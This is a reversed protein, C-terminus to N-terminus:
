PVGIGCRKAIAMWAREEKEAVSLREAHNGPPPTTELVQKAQAIKAQDEPTLTEETKIPRPEPAPEPPPANSPPERMMDGIKAAEASLDPNSTERPVIPETHPPTERIGPTIDAIRKEFVDRPILPPHEPIIDAIEAPKGVAVNAVTKDTAKEFTAADVGVANKNGYLADAEVVKAADLVDPPLRAGALQLKTLGAHIARAGAGMIFGGAAAQLIESAIDGADKHIGVEASTGAQIISGPVQMAAQTAAQFAGEKLINGAWQTLTATAAERPLATAGLFMMGLVNHPQTMGLATEGAWAVFGHGTGQLLAQREQVDRSQQAIEPDINDVNLFGEPLGGIDAFTARLAGMKEKAKALRNAYIALPVSPVAPGSMVQRIEDATPANDFPNALSEGTIAAYDKAKLDFANRRATNIYDYRDHELTTAADWRESLTAPVNTAYPAAPFDSRAVAIQGLAASM